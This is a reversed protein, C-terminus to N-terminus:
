KSNGPSSNVKRLKRFDVEDCSIHWLELLERNNSFVYFAPHGFQIWNGKGQSPFDPKHGYEGLCAVRDGIIDRLCEKYPADSGCNIAISRISAENMKKYIYFPTHFPMRRFLFTKGDYSYPENSAAKVPNHIPRLGSAEEEIRLKEAADNRKIERESSIERAEYWDSFVLFRKFFVSVVVISLIATPIIFISRENKIILRSVICFSIYSVFVWPILKESIPDNWFWMYLCVIPVAILGIPIEVGSYVWINSLKLAVSVRKKNM